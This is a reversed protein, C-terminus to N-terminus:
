LVCKILKHHGDMHWIKNPGAVGYQRRTVTRGWRSATGDPDVESLAQRVRACPVTIGKDKLYGSM